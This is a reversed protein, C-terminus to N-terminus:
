ALAQLARYLPEIGRTAELPFDQDPCRESTGALSRSNGRIDGKEHRGRTMRTRATDRAAEALGGDIVRLSARYTRDLGAAVERDLEPFLHGYRDLTVQVSAHGMRVQITKPHAGQAIAMAVATHRLDHFRVGDLGAKTRTPAWQSSNFSSHHIPNGARNPFVLGDPGPASREDLQEALLDALFAPLTIRRRGAATKPAKRHWGGDVHALQEVVSVAPGDLDVRARRLGILEGWRMGTYAATYVLIRFPRGISEALLQVEFADLFRMETAEVKPGKVGACPSAALLDHEVAVNLVRRLTRFHRHVSSPAIGAALEDNIWERIDIKRIRGMPVSGFRPLVFRELDRSYTARTTRDLDHATRLFTTAWDELRMQGHKPDVWTGRQMDAGAANLFRQAETKTAFTRSRSRDAPDRYRARWRGNPTKEISAM